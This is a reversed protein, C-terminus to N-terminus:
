RFAMNRTEFHRVPDLASCHCLKLFRSKRFGNPASSIIRSSSARRCRALHDVHIHYPAICSLVVFTYLYSYLAYDIGLLLLGLGRVVLDMLGM